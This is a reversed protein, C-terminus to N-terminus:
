RISDEVLPGVATVMDARGLLDRRTGLTVTSPYHVGVHRGNVKERIAIAGLILPPVGVYIM